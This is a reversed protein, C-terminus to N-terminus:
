LAIVSVTDDDINTVYAFDGDPSVAVDYPSDGVTVTAIVTNTATKIVSVTGNENTVYATAGNPSVAVRSPNDGVAITTTVTNTATDIVSVVGGVPNTVYATAGDPSVAVDRASGPGVTITAAVTNTATDIVSVTADDANTVFVTTGDPSVAVGVPDNGVVITDVVTNTATDVVSLADPGNTNTVVYATAGDPSVAVDLPGSVATTSAVTNTATDIVSVTGDGLNTVYVDAGDPSAAVRFPSDGVAITAIVHPAVKVTPHSDVTASGAPGFLQAGRHLASLIVGAPGSLRYAAGDDVNITFTDAGIRAFDDDPTYTFTGDRNVVVSGHEPDQSVTFSLPDGDPDLAHLNGTIVGAESYSNGAPNYATTPTRNFLTHQVQRRVWELLGWMLPPEVPAAPGDTLQPNLGLWALAGSVIGAVVSVPNPPTVLATPLVEAAATNAQAIAFTSVVPAIATDVSERDPEGAVDVDDPVQDDGTPSAAGGVTIASLHPGFDPAAPSDHAPQLPSPSSGGSRSVEPKDPEYAAPPEEPVEEAVPAAAHALPSPTSETPASEPAGTTSAANEEDSAASTETGLSEASASDSTSASSETSASSSSESSSSADSSDAAAVWPAAVVATGIGLAVALAGVRGVYKANGM